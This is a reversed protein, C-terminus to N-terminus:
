RFCKKKTTLDQQEIYPKKESCLRFKTVKQIWFTKTELLKKKKKKSIVLLLKKTLIEQQKQIFFIYKPLSSKRILKKKKRFVLTFGVLFFGQWAFFM